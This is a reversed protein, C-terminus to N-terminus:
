ALNYQSVCAPFMDERRERYVWFGKVEAYNIVWKRDVNVLWRVEGTWMVIPYWAFWRHWETREM